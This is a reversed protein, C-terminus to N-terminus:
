KIFLPLSTSLYQWRSPSVKNLEQIIIRVVTIMCPHFKIISEEGDLNSNMMITLGEMTALRGSHRLSGQRNANMGEPQEEWVSHQNTILLLIVYTIARSKLFVTAEAKTERPDRARLPALHWTM